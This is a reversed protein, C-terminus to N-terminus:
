GNLLHPQRVPWQRHAASVGVWLAVAVRDASVHALSRRCVTGIKSDGSPAILTM